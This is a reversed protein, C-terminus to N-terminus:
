KNQPLLEVGLLTFILKTVVVKNFKVITISNSCFLTQKALKIIATWIIVMLGTEGSNIVDNANKMVGM